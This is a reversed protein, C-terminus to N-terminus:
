RVSVQNLLLDNLVDLMAGNNAVIALDYELEESNVPMILGDHATYRQAAGGARETLHIGASTDEWIGRATAIAGASKESGSAVSLQHAGNSALEMVGAGFQQLHARLTMHQEATM